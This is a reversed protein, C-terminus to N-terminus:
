RLAKCILTIRLMGDVCIVVATNMTMAAGTFLVWDLSVLSWYAVSGEMELQMLEYKSGFVHYPLMVPSWRLFLVTLAMVAPTIMCLFGGAACGTTIFKSSGVHM